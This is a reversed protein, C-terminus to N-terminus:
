LDSQNKLLSHSLCIVKAPSGSKASGAPAAAPAGNQAPKGGADDTFDSIDDNDGNKPAANAQAAPTVPGDTKIQMQGDANTEALTFVPDVKRCKRSM